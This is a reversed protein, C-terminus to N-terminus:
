SGRISTRRSDRGHIDHGAFVHKKHHASFNSFPLFLIRRRRRWRADRVFGLKLLLLLLKTQAPVFGWFAM